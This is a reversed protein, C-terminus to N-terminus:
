CSVRRFSAALQLQKINITRKYYVDNAQVQLQQDTLYFILIWHVAPPVGLQSLTFDDSVFFSLFFNCM